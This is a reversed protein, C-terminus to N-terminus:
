FSNFNKRFIMKKVLITERITRRKGLFLICDGKNLKVLRNFM